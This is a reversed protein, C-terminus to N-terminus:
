PRRAALVIHQMNQHTPRFGLREMNITSVIEDPGGWITEGADLLADIEGTYVEPEDGILRYELRDGRIQMINLQVTDDEAMLLWIFMGGSTQHTDSVVVGYHEMIARYVHQSLKVSRYDEGVFASTVQPIREPFGEPAILDFEFVFNASIEDTLVHRLYLRAIEEDDELIVIHEDGAEDVINSLHLYAQNNDYLDDPWILTKDHEGLILPSM